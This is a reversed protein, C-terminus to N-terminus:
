YSFREEEVDKSCQPFVAVAFASMKRVDTKDPSTVSKRALLKRRSHDPRDKVFEPFIFRFIAKGDSDVVIDRMKRQWIVCVYSM